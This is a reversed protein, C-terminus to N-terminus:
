LMLKWVIFMYINVDGKYKDDVVVYMMEFSLNNGVCIFKNVFICFYFCVYKDKLM